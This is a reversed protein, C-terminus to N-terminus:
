DYNFADTRDCEVDTVMDYTFMSAEVVYSENM